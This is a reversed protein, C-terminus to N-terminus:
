RTRVEIVGQSHGTGYKTTADRANIYRVQQVTNADITRLIDVGGTRIGDLYVLIEDGSSALSNVGRRRLFQPRLRQVVDYATNLGDHSQIEEQTIVDSRRSSGDSSGEMSACGALVLALVPIAYRRM